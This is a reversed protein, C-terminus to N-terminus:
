EPYIQTFGPWDPDNQLSGKPMVWRMWEAKACYELEPGHKARRHALTNQDLLEWNECLSKKKLSKEVWRTSSDGKVVWVEYARSLCEKIGLLNFESLFMILQQTTFLCVISPSPNRQPPNQLKLETKMHSFALMQPLSLHPTPLLIKVESSTFFTSFLHMWVSWHSSLNLHLDITQM